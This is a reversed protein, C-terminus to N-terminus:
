FEIREKSMNNIVVTTLICLLLIVMAIASGYGYKNGRFMADFVMYTLSYTAKAPGGGTMIYMNEFAKFGSTVAILLCVKLTEKILPVTIRWHSYFRSAGELWAAELYYAPVSKVASYIILLQLGLYQWANVLSIIIIASPDQSLWDQRYSLGMMEFVKNVLGIHGHLISVWLKSVVVVSLVVPIFTVKRFFIRGKTNPDVLTFALLLGGGIQVIVLILAFILCNRLSTGLIPDQFLRSYNALGNFVAPNLGNWRTFSKLLSEFLPYIVMLTYVVLAPATFIFFIRRNQLYNKM